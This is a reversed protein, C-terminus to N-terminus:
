KPQELGASWVTSRGTRLGKMRLFHGLRPGETRLESPTRSPYCPAPNYPRVWSQLDQPSEGRTLVIQKMLWILRIFSGLEKACGHQLFIVLCVVADPIVKAVARHTRLTIRSQTTHGPM